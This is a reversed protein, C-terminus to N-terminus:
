KRGCNIEWLGAYMLLESVQTFFLYIWSRWVKRIDYVESLEWESVEVRVSLSYKKYGKWDAENNIGKFWKIEPVENSM